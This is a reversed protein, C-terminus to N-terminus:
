IIGQKQLSVIEQQLEMYLEKNEEFIEYLCFNQTVFDKYINSNQAIKFWLDYLKGSEVSNFEKTLDDDLNDITVAGISGYLLGNKDIKLWWKKGNITRYGFAKGTGAYNDRLFKVFSARTKFIKDVKKTYNDELLKTPNPLIFFRIHTVKRGTKIEEYEFIIDTHEEFESKSKELIQRKIDNFRYSKPIELLEKIEDLSIKLEARKNYRSEQEFRDKLIKYLRISYKSNLPIINKIDYKLYKDKIKLLYEMLMSSFEVKLIGVDYEVGALFHYFNFKKAFRDEMIFEKQFLEKAVNKIYTYDGIKLSVKKLYSKIDIEYINKDQELNAILYAALKLASESFQGGRMLVMEEPEKVILNNKM